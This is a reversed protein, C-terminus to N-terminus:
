CPGPTIPVVPRDHEGGIIHWDNTAPAINTASTISTGNMIWAGVTGSDQRWVIDAKGDGNLDGAVVLHWDNGVTGLNVASLLAAGNLFWAGVTGSDHRWLIDSRGDANLDGIGVIHWDSTASAINTASGITTSNMLWAGITGSNHRWLFDARNDGNIDGLGVLRWQNDVSGITVASLITTGGMLWAGVAGSDNRWIIDAAGDANLDAVGVIHWDNTVSAITAAALFAGNGLFWVGVAGSTHRFILDAHGDGNLDGTAVVRWGAPESGVNFASLIGAGNMLWMGLVGSDNQWAIDSKGDPSFNSLKAVAECARPNVTLSANRTTNGQGNTTNTFSIIGSYLSSTLGNATANTTFTVTLPSGATVTGTTFSATLWSPIGSISFSLTGTTSALQYPFSSPSFPGTTPGSSVIDVAATVQLVPSPPSSGGVLAGRTTWSFQDTGTILQNFGWAAANNSPDLQTASYDGWRCTGRSSTNCTNGFGDSTYQFTSTAIPNYVWGTNSSNSGQFILMAANGTTAQSPVTRTATVFADTSNTAVSANFLHDVNAADSTTPTFTFLASTGTTSLQYLRWRAFGGVNLTHVNWLTTGNQITASQFRGDLSDLTQGNPQAANPAATWAAIVIASTTTLTDSSAGSGSVDLRYRTLSSGSGSGPSLFFPTSSSDQVLPPAINIALTNFCAAVITGGTLSPAKDISLIAGANTPAAPASPSEEDPEGSPFDNATMLWRTSSYGVSPYDWFGGALQKCFFTTGQSLTFRYVFWSTGASTQSVALYQFQDSNGSDESEATVIFRSASPDYVVRPDFLTQTGPISFAGFFTKLSVNSVVACTAKNYV